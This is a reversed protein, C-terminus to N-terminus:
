RFDARTDSAKCVYENAIWHLMGTIVQALCAPVAERRSLPCATSLLCGSVRM